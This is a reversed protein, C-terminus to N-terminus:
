DCTTLIVYTGNVFALGQYILCAKNSMLSKSFFEKTYSQGSFCISAVEKGFLRDDSIEQGPLQENPNEPNAGTTIFYQYTM